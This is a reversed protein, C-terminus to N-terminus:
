NSGFRARYAVLYSAYAYQARTRQRSTSCRRVRCTEPMPCPKSATSPHMPRISHSIYFMTESSRSKCVHEPQMPQLCCCVCRASANPSATPELTSWQLANKLLLPLVDDQEAYYRCVYLGVYITSLSMGSHEVSQNGLISTTTRGPATSCSVDFTTRNPPQIGTALRICVSLHCAFFTSLCSAYCPSASSAHNLSRDFRPIAGIRTAM